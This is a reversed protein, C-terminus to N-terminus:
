VKFERRKIETKLDTIALSTQAIEETAEGHMRNFAADDLVCGSLKLLVKLRRKANHRSIQLKVMECALDETSTAWLHTHQKLLGSKWVKSRVMAGHKVALVCPVISDSTM